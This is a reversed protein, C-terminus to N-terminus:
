SIGAYLVRLDKRLLKGMANRPLSETFFVLEPRKFSALRQHCYDILAEAAVSGEPRRVVVAAVREGWEEDPLGIVAAEEVEPHSELVVEVEEPAINEGGRIIHDSKRGALFVYGGEDIWGLDRTRLWGDHLTQETADPQNYYGRMLRPTRIAIAGVQGAPLPQGAEDVICLEVDPLPRGISGLRRLRLEVESPSGELRHDSPGLVTITSTTETQGYANLFQIRPPLTEIARRIVSLPMPAAGYSIVELAGLDTRALSPADLVRKLMTPVLFSHTIRQAEVLQLWEEADFQRVMVIRRGTFVATLVATLGAVHYLPASLLVAGRDSGDAMEVTELVFETLGGHELMVAKAFSTTGSTFMLVALQDDEVWAIGQPEARATLDVFSPTRELATDLGVLEPQSALEGCVTEALALYRDGVLLVRPAATRVMHALEDAKARYNLPVFVGALSATAFLIEVVARTNTELVAVRDGPEVGLSALAGAAAAVGAQLDAYTLTEGEFRLIDQDPFTSAPIELLEALNM